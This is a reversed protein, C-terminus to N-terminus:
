CTASIGSVSQEMEAGNLSRELINVAPLRTEVPSQTYINQSVDLGHGLQDAVLKGDIGLGKMLTAHTRRMVQFTAWGLSAKDLNPKMSRRWLNERTLPTMNESPFVYAKPDTSAAMERWIGLESMLDKPLATKRVSQRTKPTDILGRYVRQRIEASSTDVAGWTLALIEGPRMGGLIALKAILRERAPLVRFCARVDQMTMVNRVPQEADRPTWLLDAPSREILQEALALGFIQKMDWRLHDVISFSLNSAKRDLLDQLENRQFSWLPRSAFETCLHVMVRNKNTTVTSKKWKREYFPFYVEIVFSAFTWERKQAKRNAETALVEAGRRADSKTMDKVFGLVRSKRKKDEWWMGVWRGDQKKVSGKQYRSKRM